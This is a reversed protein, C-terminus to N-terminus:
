SGKLTDPISISNGDTFRIEMRPLLDSNDLKRKETQVM